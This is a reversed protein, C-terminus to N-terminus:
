RARAGDLARRGVVLFSFAVWATGEGIAALVDSAFHAGLYVRSVATLAVMAVVLVAGAARERLDARTALVWVLVFGWWVAAGATHGSPFSYSGPEFAGGVGPRARQFADKALHNLLMGGPVCVLLPPLWALQRRWALLVAALAALALLVRTGHLQSVLLMAATLWPRALGHLWAGVTADARTVPGHWLLDAALAAFLGAGLVLVVLAARTARAPAAPQAADPM